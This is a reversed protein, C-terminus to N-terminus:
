TRRRAAKRMGDVADLVALVVIAIPVIVVAARVLPEAEPFTGLFEPSLAAGSAILWAAPTAWAADLAVNAVALPWTWRGIGFAVLAFVMSLIAVAIFWPIWFEWLAPELLAVRGGGPTIVVGLDRELFFLGIVALAAVVAVITEALGIRASPIDPLEDADWDDVFPRRRGSVREMVAFAVTIWFAVQVTVTFAVTLATGAAPWLDVGALLQVFLLGGFVSPAVAALVVILLRRWSFFWRPGILYGTRHELEVVRREPDGLRTVVAGEATREDAGTAVERAVDSEIRARLEREVLERRAPLLRHTVAWVYRDALSDVRVRYLATVSPPPVM